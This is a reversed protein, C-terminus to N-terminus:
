EGRLLKQVAERDLSPVGGSLARSRRAEADAQEAMTLVEDEISPIGGSLLKNREAQIDSLEARTPEEHQIEDIAERKLDTLKQAMDRQAVTRINSMANLKASNIDESPIGGSLVRSRRAEADVQEARTLMEPNQERYKSILDQDDDPNLGSSYLGTTLAALVGPSAAASAVAGAGTAAARGLRSLNGARSKNYAEFRKPDLSKKFNDLYRSDATESPTGEKFYNPNEKLLELLQRTIDQEGAM